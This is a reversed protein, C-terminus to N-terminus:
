DPPWSRGLFAALRTTPGADPPPEVAEGFPLEPGRPVGDLAQEGIGLATAALDPDAEPDLGTAVALDWGHAVTEMIFGGLALGGPAPGWPATLTATLLDDDAWRGLAEQADARYAAGAGDADIAM